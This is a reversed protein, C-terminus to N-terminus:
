LHGIPEHFIDQVDNIMLFICTLVLILYWRSSDSHTYRHRILASKQCFGAFNTFCNDKLLFYILYIFFIALFVRISLTTSFLLSEQVIPPFFHAEISFLMYNGWLIFIWSGYLRTIGSRPNRKRFFVNTQPYVCVCVCVCVCVSGCVQTWQLM